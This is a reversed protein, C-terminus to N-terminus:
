KKQSYFLAEIHQLDGKPENDSISEIVESNENDEFLITWKGINKNFKCYPFLMHHHWFKGEKNLEKARELFRNVKSSPLLEKREGKEKIVDTGHLLKVLEKGINMYPKESYCVYVINDEANEIILAYKKVSNLKCEPTLIHFHWRIGKLAYGEAIGKMKEISLEIM